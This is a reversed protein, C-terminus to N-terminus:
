SLKDIVDENRRGIDPFADEVLTGDFDIAVFYFKNLNMEKVKSYFKSLNEM